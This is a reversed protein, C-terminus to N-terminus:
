NGQVPEVASTPTYKFFAGVPTFQRKYLRVKADTRVTSFVGITLNLQLGDSAQKSFAMLQKAYTSKRHEPHIYLSLELLQNDLSFWIGDIVMLLYGKLPQGKEGIVAVLGGQKDFHRRFMWYVKEECFSYPSEETCAQKAIEMLFPFDEPEALRVDQCDSFNVPM